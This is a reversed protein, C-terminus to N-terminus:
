CVKLIEGDVVVKRVNSPKTHRVVADYILQPTPCEPLDILLYDASKGSALSGTTNEISLVRAGGITAMQLLEMATPTPMIATESVFRMEDWLNFGTPGNLTDTGIGIPIGHERLKGFPFMGHGLFHNTRPCYISRCMNRAITTFDRIGLHLGGVISPSAELFGIEGLYQIPTKHHPPPLEDTWGIAPFLTTAISGKSDYFFEMETFSEAAHIQIPVGSNKAHQSIISLLNKSLLYPAFPGLGVKILDSGKDLYKDVIAMASEFRDQADEGAGAYIEPFVVARIGMEDIINFIGEFCTMDGVCTTGAAILNNVAGQIGIIIERISSKNRHNLIALLWEIYDPTHTVDRQGINFAGSLDLHTHANILGPMLVSNPNEQISGIQHTKKLEDAKGVACIKGLETAIAGDEIAEGEMPLVYKATILEM